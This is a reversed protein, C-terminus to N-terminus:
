NKEEVLSKSWKLRIREYVIKGDKDKNKERFLVSVNVGLAEELQDKVRDKINSLAISRDGTLSYPQTGTVSAFSEDIFQKGEADAKRMASVTRDLYMKQLENM